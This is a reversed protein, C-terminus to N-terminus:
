LTTLRCHTLSLVKIHQYQSPLIDIAIEEEAFSLSIHQLQANFHARNNRLYNSLM